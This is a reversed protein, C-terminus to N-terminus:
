KPCAKELGEAHRSASQAVAVVDLRREVLDGNFQFLVEVAVRQERQRPLSTRTPMARESERDSLDFTGAHIRHDGDMYKARITFDFAKQLWDIMAAADRYRFTPYIRPPEATSM